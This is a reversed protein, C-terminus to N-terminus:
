TEELLNLEKLRTEFDLASGSEMNIIGLCATQTPLESLKSVCDVDIAELQFQLIIRTKSCNKVNNEVDNKTLLM